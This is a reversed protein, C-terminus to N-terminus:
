ADEYVKNMVITDGLELGDQYVLVHIELAARAYYLANPVARPGPRSRAWKQPPLLRMKKQLEVILKPIRCIGLDLHTLCYSILSKTRSALAMSVFFM